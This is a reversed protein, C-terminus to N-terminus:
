KAANLRRLVAQAASKVLPSGEKAAAELLPRSPLDRWEGLTVIAFRRISEDTHGALERMRPLHKEKLAPKAVAAERVVRIALHRVPDRAAEPAALWEEATPLAKPDGLRQLALLAECKVKDHRDTLATHLVPVTTLLEQEAQARERQATSVAGEPGPFANNGALTIQAHLANTGLHQVAWSRFREREAPNQLVKILAETLGAYHSRRLLEAAEHRVTDDDSTDLLVAVVAPIDAPNRIAPLRATQDATVRPLKSNKNVFEALAPDTFTPPVELFQPMAFQM